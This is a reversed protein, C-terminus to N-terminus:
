SIKMRGVPSTTRREKEMYIGGTPLHDKGSKIQEKRKNYRERLIFDILPKALSGDCRVDKLVTGDAEAIVAGNSALIFDCEFGDEEPIDILNKLGRGSVLGFKNGKKRWLSIANRKEDGIGGYNLTGDYDSAIIKM